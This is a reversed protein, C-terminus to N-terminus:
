TALDDLSGSFNLDCIVAEEVSPYGDPGVLYPGLVRITNQKLELDVIDIDTTELWVAKGHDTKTLVVYMEKSCSSM